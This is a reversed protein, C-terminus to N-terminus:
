ATSSVTSSAGNVPVTVTAFFRLRPLRASAAAKERAIGDLGLHVSRGGRGAPIV